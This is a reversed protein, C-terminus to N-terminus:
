QDHTKSVSWATRLSPEPVEHLKIATAVRGYDVRPGPLPPGLLALVGNNEGTRDGYSVRVM